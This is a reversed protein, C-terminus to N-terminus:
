SLAGLAFIPMYAAWVGFVFAAASSVLSVVLVVGGRYSHRHLAFWLPVFAFLALVILPYWSFYVAAALPLPADFAAFVEQFRPAFFLIIGSVLTAPIFSIRFLLVQNSHNSM